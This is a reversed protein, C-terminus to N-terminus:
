RQEAGFREQLMQVVAETATSVEEDTLTRDKRQFVLRFAVSVKGEPVGEGEYRDFIEAWALSEGAKKEVAGLVAQSPQDRDLLV